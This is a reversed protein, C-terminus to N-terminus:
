KERQPGQSGTDGKEGKLAALQEETFDAYTFADGKDGKAGQIPGNNVWGKEADYIYIDYPAATGVGYADGDQPGTVAETLQGLTDYYGLIRFGAGTDGKDGKPGQAGTDGKEGQSGKSGNKVTFTSKSGDTKTVTIVNSGGDSSSTTTQEVSQIGVGDSGSAGPPGIPGQKLSELQEETFDEYTFADGKDGKEGDRGDTGNFEGNEAATLLEQKAANAAEAASNASAAAELLQQTLTQTPQLPEEGTTESNQVIEWGNDANMTTMVKQSGVYGTIGLMLVGTEALCEWPVTIQQGFTHLIEKKVAGNSFVCVISTMEAWEDDMDLELVDVNVGNRVVTQPAKVYIKRQRVTAFLM